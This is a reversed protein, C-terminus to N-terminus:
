REYLFSVSGRNGTARLGVFGLLLLGALLHDLHIATTELENIELRIYSLKTM